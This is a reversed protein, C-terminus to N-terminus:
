RLVNNIYCSKHIDFQTLCRTGGLRQEYVVVTDEPMWVSDNYLQYMKYSDPFIIGFAGQLAPNYHKFLNVSVDVLSDDKYTRLSDCQLFPIHHVTDVGVYQHITFVPLSDGAHVLEDLLTDTEILTSDYTIGM